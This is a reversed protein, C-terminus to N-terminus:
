NSIAQVTSVLMRLMHEITTSSPSGSPHNASFQLQITEGHLRILWTYIPGLGDTWEFRLADISAITLSSHEPSSHTGTYTQWLLSLADQTPLHELEPHRQLTWEGHETGVFDETFILAKDQELLSSAHLLLHTPSTISLWGEPVDIALKSNPIQTKHHQM